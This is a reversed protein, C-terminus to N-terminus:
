LLQKIREALNSCLDFQGRTGQHGAVKRWVACRPDSKQELTFGGVKLRVRTMKRDTWIQRASGSYDSKLARRM